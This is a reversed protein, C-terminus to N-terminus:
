LRVLAQSFSKAWAEAAQGDSWDKSVSKSLTLLEDRAQNYAKLLGMLSLSSLEYAVLFAIPYTYRKDSVSSM